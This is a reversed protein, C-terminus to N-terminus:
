KTRCPPAGGRRFTVGIHRQAAAVKAPLVQDNEGLTQNVEQKNWTATLSFNSSYNM